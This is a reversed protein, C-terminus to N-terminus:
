YEWTLKAYFSRGIETAPVFFESIFELHHDDFLNKGMLQLTINDRIQWAINADVAYYQEVKQQAYFAIPSSTALEGVYRGQLNLHVGSGLDINALLAVQHRPSSNEGVIASVSYDGAMYGIADTNINLYTYNCQTALWSFPHWHTSLELGYSDAEIDNTINISTADVQKYTQLDSYKNYFVALDLCFSDSPTYRYGAEYAIVKEADYNSNGNVYIKPLTATATDVGFVLKSSSEYNSPTRIARSIAAWLRQTATLKWLIRASPQVENGTYENHEFKCGLTLWLHNEKLVITDQLFASYLADTEEESDFAVMYSNNYSNNILRYGLGWIIESASFLRFQHQFDVDLTYHKEDITILNRNTYDLYGQLTYSSETNYHHQWRGLVNAGTTLVDDKQNTPFPSPTWYPEIRVQHKNSYADGQLTWTDQDGLNGDFRLGGVTSTSEDCAADNSNLLESNSNNSAHHQLHFRGYIDDSVQFGYRGTAMYTEQNGGGVSVLAGQSDGSNRTIVNIIGNVANAGWLTAGPGRIIEIREIDELVLNQDEWYVGSFSPSYVNRGDIQVLLKNAFLGNFGRATIAWKNGAVQAVALGPVQRFLEMISTAGSDRIAERNIVYVAAAADALNQPKRSVSTIQIDMLAALDLEYLGNDVALAISPLLMIVFAHYVVWRWVERLYSQSTVSPADIDARCYANTTKSM